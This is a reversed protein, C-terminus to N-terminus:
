SEAAVTAHPGGAARRRLAEEVSEFSWQVDGLCEWAGCKPCIMTSGYGGDEDDAYDEQLAEVPFQAHCTLCEVTLPEYRYLWKPEPTLSRLVQVNRQQGQATPYTRGAVHYETRGAHPNEQLTTLDILRHM